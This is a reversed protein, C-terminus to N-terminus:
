RVCLLPFHHQDFNRKHKNLSVSQFGMLISLLLLDGKHSLFSLLTDASTGGQPFFGPFSLSLPLPRSGNRDLPSSVPAFQFDPHLSSVRSSHVLSPPGKARSFCLTWDCTGSVCLLIQGLGSLFVNSCFEFYFALWPYASDHRSAMLCGLNSLPPTPFCSARESTLPLTLIVPCRSGLSRCPSYSGGISPPFSREFFAVYHHSKVRQGTPLRLGNVPCDGSSDYQKRQPYTEKKGGSEKKNFYLQNVINHWTRSDLLAVWDDMYTCMGKRPNEEM